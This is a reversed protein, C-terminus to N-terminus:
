CSGCRMSPGGGCGARDMRFLVKGVKKRDAIGVRDLMELFTSFSSAENTVLAEYTFTVADEIDDTIRVTANDRKVFVWRVDGTDLVEANAALKEDRRVAAYSADTGPMAVHNFSDGEQRYYHGPLPEPYGQKMALVRNQEAKVGRGLRSATDPDLTSAEDAQKAGGAAEDAQKAEAGVEDAQRVDPPAQTRGAGGTAGMVDDGEDLVDEAQR